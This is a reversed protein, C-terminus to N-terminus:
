NVLQMEAATLENTAQQLDMGPVATKLLVDRSSARGLLADYITQPLEHAGTLGVTLSGQPDFDVVLVRYGAEALSAGISITSTTKGVGGKQNFVSIVRAKDRPKRNKPMKPEVSFWKAVNVAM